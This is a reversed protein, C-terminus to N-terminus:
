KPSNLVALVEKTVDLGPATYLPILAGAGIKREVNPAGDLEDQNLPENYQLVMELAHAQAYRECASRVEKYIEVMQMAAKKGLQQKAEETAKVMDDQLKKVEKEIEGRKDSFPDMKDYKEKLAAGQEQMAKIREEYPKAEAKMGEKYSKYKDYNTVVYTLNILGIRMRPAPPEPKDQSWSRGVGILAVATLLVAGGVIFKKM